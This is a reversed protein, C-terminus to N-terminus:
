GPDSSTFNIMQQFPNPTASGQTNTITIPEYSTLMLPKCFTFVVPVTAPVEIVPFGEVKVVYSGIVIVFVCDEAVGDGNWCIILKM